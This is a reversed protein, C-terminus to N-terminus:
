QRREPVVPTGSTPYADFEFHLRQYHVLWPLIRPDEDVLYQWGRVLEALLQEGTMTRVDLDRGFGAFTTHTQECAHTALINDSEEGVLRSLELDRFNGVQRTHIVPTGDLIGVNEYNLLKPWLSDLGWGWGTTTLDLTPLLTELTAGSFGPVMIEVFGVWRGFFRQNKMTIFHTYPSAEHLAPAFLNLGVGRAVEFMTSITDGSALVDDDPLWIYDYERWGDWENLLTRLGSWKPGPIVDGVVCDLDDQGGVPEYPALRLDWNRPRRSDLWYAHLSRKGARAVVLNRKVARYRRV